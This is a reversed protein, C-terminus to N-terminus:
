INQYDVIVKVVTGLINVSPDPLAEYSNRMPVKSSEILLYEGSDDKKYRRLILCDDKIAAIINNDHPSLESNIIVCDKYKIGCKNMSNDPASTAFHMCRSNIFNYPLNIISNRYSFSKNTIGEINTCTFFPITTGCFPQVEKKSLIGSSNMVDMFYSIPIELAKTLKQILTFNPTSYGTEYNSITTKRVGIIDALEQQSLGREKRIQKLVESFNINDESM